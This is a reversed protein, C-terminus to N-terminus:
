DFIRGEDDLGYVIKAKTDSLFDVMVSSNEDKTTIFTDILRLLVQSVGNNIHRTVVIPANDGYDNVMNAMEQVYGDVNEGNIEVVLVVKDNQSFKMLYKSLVSHWIREDMQFDGYMYFIHYSANKLVKLAGITEDDSEDVIIDQTEQLFREVNKMLPYKVKIEEEPWYWWKIKQLRHIVKPEFRYKIVQAPNGVVVAYPPVDKAVVAGAGIVAGNGIRVGGMITVDCGIWVDNGIIIQYKNAKFAHNQDLPDNIAFDDFPFTTVCSYDHNQGIEFTVRHAISCYRGILVHGKTSGFELNADIVYSGEGATVAVWKNEKGFSITRNGPGHKISFNGIM